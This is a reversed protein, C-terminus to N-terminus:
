ASELAALKRATAATERAIADRLVAAEDLAAWAAALAKDAQARTSLTGLESSYICEGTLDHITAKYERGRSADFGRQQTGIAAMFIGHESNRTYLIRAGFFRLTGADFYHTRGEMMRQAQVTESQSYTDPIARMDAAHITAKLNDM